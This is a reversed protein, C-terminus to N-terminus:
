IIPPLLHGPCSFLGFRSIYGLEDDFPSFSSRRPQSPKQLFQIEYKRQQLIRVTQSLIAYSISLGIHILYIIWNPSLVICFIKSVMLLTVGTWHAQLLHDTLIVNKIVEGGLIIGHHSIPAICWRCSMIIIKHCAYPVNTIASLSSMFNPIIVLTPFLSFAIIVFIRIYFRNVKWFTDISYGASVLAVIAYMTNYLVDLLPATYFDCLFIMIGLVITLTLLSTRNYCDLVVILLIALHAVPQINFATVLRIRKLLSLTIDDSVYKECCTVCSKSCMAVFQQLYERMNIDLDFGSVDIEKKESDSREFILTSKDKFGLRRLTSKHFNTRTFDRTLKSKYISYKKSDIITKSTGDGIIINNVNSISDRLQGIKDPEKEYSQSSFDIADKILCDSSKSGENWKVADRYALQWIALRFSRIFIFLFNKVFLISFNGQSLDYIRYTLFPIDILFLGVM